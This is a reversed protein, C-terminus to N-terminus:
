FSRPGSTPPHTAMHSVRRVTLPTMTPDSVACRCALSLAAECLECSRSGKAASLTAQLSRIAMRSLHARDGHDCSNLLTTQLARLALVVGRFPWCTKDTYRLCISVISEGIARVQRVLEPSTATGQLAGLLYHAADFAVQVVGGALSACGAPVVLVCVCMCVRVCVCLDLCAM